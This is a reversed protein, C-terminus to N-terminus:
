LFTGKESTFTGNVMTKQVNEMEILIGKRHQKQVHIM